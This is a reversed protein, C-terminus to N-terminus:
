EETPKQIFTEVAVSDGGAALYEEIAQQLQEVFEELCLGNEMIYTAM